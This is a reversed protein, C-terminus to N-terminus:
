KQKNVELWVRHDFNCIATLHKGRFDSVFFAADWAAGWAAVRAADWAAGWAADRAADWAADWAAGWAADRAAVWAAGWAADRAADWAAGRAADWAAGRAAVRAADWAAGRAAFYEPPLTGVWKVMAKTDILWQPDLVRCTIRVKRVVVKGDSEPEGKVGEAEAEWVEYDLKDLWMYPNMTVHFGNECIVLEGKSEYWENPKWIHNGRVCSHLEGDEGRKLVKYYTTM